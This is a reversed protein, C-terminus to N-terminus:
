LYEEKYFYNKLMEMCRYFEECFAEIDNWVTSPSQSTFGEAMWVLMKMFLKLDVGDKFKSVDVGDLVIKNRFDEGESGALLAKIDERVEDDKEYYVSKIFSFIAPHKKMASIEIDTTLKIREFFDTITSDFKESVENVIVRGCYNILYFYLEKKTGFYHFVMSKSIGAAAAIDSVSTKKYGDNGFSALAADIITNQKELPM